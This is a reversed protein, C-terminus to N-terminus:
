AMADLLRRQLHALRGIVNFGITGGYADCSSGDSYHCVFAIGNIEGAEARELAWRLQEVCEADPSPINPSIGEHIPVINSPM